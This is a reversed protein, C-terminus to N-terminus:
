RRKLWGERFNALIREALSSTTTRQSGRAFRKELFHQGTSLLTTMFLYWIAAVILLPVVQYTRNYVDSVGRLLEAYSVVSALSTFKLMGILENGTPPIIVRMAQPLVIHRLTRFRSLGYATAADSQGEDVSLIGARVIESYYAAFNLGLGLLAALFPTMVQNTNLDIGLFGLQVRPFISSLNFWFILQVLTPTGRFFWQYLSAVGTLVPNSSLRMVAVVTGLVMGLAMSLVTMVITGKVGALVESSFLYQGVVSWQMTKTTALVWALWALLLVVVGAGTWRGPYHRPVVPLDVDSEWRDQKEFQDAAAGGATM